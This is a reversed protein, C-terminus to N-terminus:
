MDRERRRFVRSSVLPLRKPFDWRHVKHSIAHTAPFSALLGTEVLSMSERDEESVEGDFYCDFHMSIDTWTVDVARLKPPVEGLLALQMQVRVVHERDNTTTM